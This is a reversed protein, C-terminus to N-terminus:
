QYAHTNAALKFRYVHRVDRLLLHGRKGSWLFFPLGEQESIDRFEAICILSDYQRLMSQGVIYCSPM